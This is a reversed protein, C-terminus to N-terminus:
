SISVNVLCGLIYLLRKANDLFKRAKIKLVGKLRIMADNRPLRVLNENIVILYFCKEYLV